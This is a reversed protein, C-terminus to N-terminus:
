LSYFLSRLHKFPISILSCKDTSLFFQPFLCVLHSERKIEREILRDMEIEKVSESM